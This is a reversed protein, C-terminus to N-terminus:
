NIKLHIKKLCKLSLVNLKQFYISIQINSEFEGLYPM